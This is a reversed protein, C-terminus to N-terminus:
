KCEVILRRAVLRIGANQLYDYMDVSYDADVSRGSVFLKDLDAIGVTRFALRLPTGKLDRQFLETVYTASEGAGITSINIRIAPVANALGNKRMVLPRWESKSGFSSYLNQAVTDCKELIQCTESSPEVVISLRPKGTPDYFKTSVGFRIKMNRSHMQLPLNKHLMMMKQTGWYTPVVISRLSSVSIEDSELYIHFDSCGESQKPSYDQASLSVPDSPDITPIPGLIGLHEKDSSESQMTSTKLCDILGAFDFHDKDANSSQTDSTCNSSKEVENNAVSAKCNRQLAKRSLEEPVIENSMTGRSRTTVGPSDVKVPSSSSEIPLVDPFNSELFLVTACYKLVELNMRVDDLSRHKQKGLEFYNALTAMKMDGARRGFKQRLLFLSDILGKAEPAPRGIQAFAERIRACDFRLINHGAWIRGDLFDFIKDAIEEFTPAAAVADRTIGNCRASTQSIISLDAPRILTCFHEIEVLKRPCVLIAGFELVTFKQRTRSPVTTEVDFFVIEQRNKLAMAM